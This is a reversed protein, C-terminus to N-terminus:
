MLYSVVLVVRAAGLPPRKTTYFGATTSVVLRWEKALSHIPPFAFGGPKKPSLRKVFLSPDQNRDQTHYGAAPTLGIFGPLDM